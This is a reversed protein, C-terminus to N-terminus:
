RSVGAGSLSSRGGGRPTVEILAPINEGIAKVHSIIGITKGETRRLESLTSLAHELSEPDLTGFGEDLFLSDIHIKEGSMSSLGLALALSVQFREGGSLNASTRIEDGRLHDLVDIALKDDGDSVLLEYRGNMKRLTENAARLLHGLTIQQAIRRFNQGDAGGALENIQKWMENKQQLSKIKEQLGGLDQRKKVNDDLEKKLAGIQQHIEVLRPQLEALKETVTNRDTGEPLRGRLDKLQTENSERQGALTKKQEELRARTETLTQLEGAPLLSQEFLEPTLQEESCAATFEQRRGDMETKQERLTQTLSNKRETQLRIVEEQRSKQQSFRNFEEQAAALQKAATRSEKQPDKDGFLINRDSKLANLDQEKLGIEKRLEEAKKEAEAIRAALNSREADRKAHDKEFEQLKLGADRRAKIRLDIEEPLRDSGDWQFGRGSLQDKLQDQTQTCQLREQELLGALRDHEKQQVGATERLHELDNEALTKQVKAETEAAAAKTVAKEAATLKKLRDDIEELESENLTLVQQNEDAYPHIESGCLPCPKGKVLHKREEEYSQIKKQLLLNRTLCAKQQELSERTAGQLIAAAADQKRKLDAQAKKLEEEKQGALETQRAIKEGTLRLAAAAKDLEQKRTQLSEKMKKLPTLREQWQAKTVELTNDDPHAAIYSEAQKRETELQQLQQLLDQQESLSNERETEQGRRQKQLEKLLSEAQLIKQDLASVEGVLRNLRMQEERRQEVLLNAETVSKELPELQRSLEPLQKELEGLEKSNERVKRETESFAQFAPLVRAAKEGAALRVADPAFATQKRVLEEEAAATERQVKEAAAIGDLLKLLEDLRNKRVTQEGATKQLEDLETKKAAETEPPLLQYGKQEAECRDLETQVAKYKENIKRAILTYQETGTIQELVEARHSGASLFADFKGQALLVTRYFQEAKMGLLEEIKRKAETNKQTQEKGCSIQHIMSGPNLDGKQATKTSRQYSGFGFHALYDKGNIEFIVDALCSGAGKSVVESALFENGGKIRPTEAFLALCIADLITTKGSGTPGMIAFLGDAFADSTFDIEWRGYLSNINELILKKIKM